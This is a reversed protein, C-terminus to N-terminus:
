GSARQESSVALDFAPVKAKAYTSKSVVRDERFVLLDLGRWSTPEGDMELTCRWSAMVKGAEGDVFLDEELFRMEGWTGSFQPEFATRIADLGVSRRGNFEDYVADAAFFGMVRDLDGANFAALFETALQRLDADSM